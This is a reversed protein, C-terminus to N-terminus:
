FTGGAIVDLGLNVRAAAVDTLDSLNAAKAMKGGVTATLAAFSADDGEILAQIEVLTDYAAGAGGILDAIRTNVYATTAIKTSNDAGAPTPATPAGTFAPNNLRAITGDASIANAGDIAIGAGATYIAGAALEAWETANNAANKRLVQLAAGGDPVRHAIKFDDKAIAKASTANGNGDDGFGVYLFGDAMNYGLEATLLAAPAGAAGAASRFKITVPIIAM